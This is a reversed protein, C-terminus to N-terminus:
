GDLLSFQLIAHRHYKITNDAELILVKSQNILVTFTDRLGYIYIYIYISVSVSVCLKSRLM